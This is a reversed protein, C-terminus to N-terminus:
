SERKALIRSRLRGLRYALNLPLLRVMTSIFKYQASPICIAENQMVARYGERAVFEASLWLMKPLRSM